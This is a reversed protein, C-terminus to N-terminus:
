VSIVERFGICLVVSSNLPIPHGDSSVVDLVMDQIDGPVVKCYLPNDWQHNVIEGYEGNLPIPTSITPLLKEGVINPETVNSIVLMHTQNFPMLPSWDSIANPNVEQYESFGLAMALQTSFSVRLVKSSYIRIRFRSSDEIYDVGVSQLIEQMEANSYEVVEPETQTAVSSHKKNDENMKNQVRRMFSAFSRDITKRQTSKKSSTSPSPSTARTTADILEDDGSMPIIERQLNMNKDFWERVKYKGPAKFEKRTKLDDATIDM